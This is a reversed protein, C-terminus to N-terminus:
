ILVLGYIYKYPCSSLTIVKSGKYSELKYKGGKTKTYLQNVNELTDRLLSNDKGRSYSENIDKNDHVTCLNEFDEWFLLTDVKKEIAKKGKGEKVIITKVPMSYVEKNSEEKVIAKYTNMINEKETKSIFIPQNSAQKEM